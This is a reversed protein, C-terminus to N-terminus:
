ELEIGDLFDRHLVKHEQTYDSGVAYTILQFTKHPQTVITNAYTVGLGELSTGYVITETAFPFREETEIGVVIIEEEAVNAALAANSVVAGRMFEQTLGDEIGLQEVIVIAYHRDDHRYSAAIETSGSTTKKWSNKSGCFSIGSGLKSCRLDQEGEYAWTGNDFLTVSKGDVLSRGVAEQASACDSMAGSVLAMAVIALFSIKM